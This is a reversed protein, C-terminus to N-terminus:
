CQLLVGQMFGAVCYLRLFTKLVGTERHSTAPWFLARTSSEPDPVLKAMTWTTASFCHVLLLNFNVLQKMMM